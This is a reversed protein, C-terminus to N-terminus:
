LATQCSSRPHVKLQRERLEGYPYPVNHGSRKIEFNNSPQQPHMIAFPHVHILTAVGPKKKCSRTKNPDLQNHPSNKLNQAFRAKKPLLLNNSTKKLIFKKESFTKKRPL